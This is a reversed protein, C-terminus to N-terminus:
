DFFFTMAAWMEHFADTGYEVYDGTWMSVGRLGSSKAWNTKIKLSNANDFWVQHDQTTKADKYNFWPSQLPQNWRLGTTSTKLLGMLETYAKERGAADSCPVGRFPVPQIECTTENPLKICPYDYGYWPLGLVLKSPPIGLKTFNVIGAHGLSPPSNASAVCPGRIQSRMDYDMVVVFDVTRAISSYDYCRKDICNPSWAVDFTVQAYPILLKIYSTANVILENLDHALTADLEDEIDINVGDVGTDKIKKVLSVIWDSTATLNKIQALPFDASLVVRAKHAHATCIMKPDFTGFAAMTTVYDWDYHQWGDKLLQFVYLEKRNPDVTIPDCLSQPSCVCESACQGIFFALLSLHVWVAYGVSKLM